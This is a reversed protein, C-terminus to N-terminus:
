TIVTHGGIYWGCSKPIIFWMLQLFWLAISRIIFCCILSEICYQWNIRLQGVLWECWSHWLVQWDATKIVDVGDKGWHSQFTMVTKTKERLSPHQNTQRHPRNCSFLPRRHPSLSCLPYQVVQSMHNPWLWFLQWGATATQWLRRYRYTIERLECSVIAKTHFHGTGSMRHWRYNSSFIQGAQIWM